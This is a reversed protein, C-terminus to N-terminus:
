HAIDNHLRSRLCGAGGIIFAMTQGMGSPSIPDLLLSLGERGLLVEDPDAVLVCFLLRAVIAVRDRDHPDRIQLSLAGKKTLSRNGTRHRMRRPAM